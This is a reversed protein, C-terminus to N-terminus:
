NSLKWSKSVGHVTTWWVGRDMSNELCSYQLPNGNGEGHSRRLGPTSGLYGANCASEKGDSGHPFGLCKFTFGFIISSLMPLVSVSVSWQLIRESGSGLNFSIFGSIFLHFKIFRLLKQVAFSVIFLIYHSFLQLCLFQCLMLRWFIYASWVTWYWFFFVVWNFFPLHGLCINRCLLHVSPWYVYSFISLIM